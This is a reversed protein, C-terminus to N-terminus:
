HQLYFDIAKGTEAHEQLDVATQSQGLLPVILLECGKNTSNEQTEGNGAPHTPWSTPLSFPRRGLSHLVLVGIGDAAVLLRHDWGVLPPPPGLLVDLGVGVLFLVIGLCLLVTVSGFRDHRALAGGRNLVSPLLLPPPLRLAAAVGHRRLLILRCPLVSEPLMPAPPLVGRPSSGLCPDVALLSARIM